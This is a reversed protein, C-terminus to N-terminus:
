APGGPIHYRALVVTVNDRGGGALALGVLADCASAAMGPRGLVAAIAEESAMDTLGDTCLLVQDGDELRLQQIEVAIEEQRTGIVNTLVHRLRHTAAEEPSIAGADALAQALTHDRTLRNLRGRRWLYARSDGVHVVLLRAGLSVAVTLTTGMGYLGPDARAQETLAHQVLQFRREMRASVDWRGGEGARMIWDPTQLALDVLGAIAERSAVEGAAAGGVGDAVVLAYATEGSRQPVAGAPLNTLLTQMARDFRAVLFHDENNRRVAGPHSSAGLDVGVQSSSVGEEQREPPAPVPVEVTDANHESAM